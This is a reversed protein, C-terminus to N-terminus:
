ADHGVTASDRADNKGGENRFIVGAWTRGTEILVEM